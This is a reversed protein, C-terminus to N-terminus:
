RVSGQSGASPENTTEKIEKRAVVVAALLAALLLLGAVEFPLLYPGLFANGITEATPRFPGLDRVPWAHGFVAALLVLTTAILIVAGPFRNGVPNSSKVQSIKNTLMVAFLILVLIGGVYVMLQVVAVFDASLLAFLGVVGALTALLSFAAYVINRSFAVGVAGTITVAAIPVFVLFAPSVTQLLDDLM